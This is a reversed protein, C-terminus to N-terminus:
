QVILLQFMYLDGILIVEEQAQRGDPHHQLRQRHVGGLVSQEPRRLLGRRHGQVPHPHLLGSDQPREAQEAEPQPLLRPGGEAPDRLRRQHHAGEDEGARESRDEAGADHEQLEEAPRFRFQFPKPLAQLGAAAAGGAADLAPLTLLM